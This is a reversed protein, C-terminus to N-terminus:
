SYAYVPHVTFTLLFYFFSFSRFMFYHFLIASSWVSLLFSIYAFIRSSICYAVSLITRKTIKELDVEKTWSINVKLIDQFRNWHLGLVATKKSHETDNREETFEWGRLDFGGKSMLNKSCTTFEKLEEKTPISTVVNDVYFSKLLKQKLETDYEVDNTIHYEIVSALLFPSSKVGFVVRAGIVTNKSNVNKVFRM